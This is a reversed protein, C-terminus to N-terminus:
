PVPFVPVLDGPDDSDDYVVKELFLGAGPATHAPVSFGSLHSPLPHNRILHEFDSPSLKKSGVEALAGVIRRVMKWLFHSAGIRFLILSGSSSMEVREVVVVTSQEGARKDTFREFDHRGVLCTCAQQMSALDLSDRIWWVFQKALATRRISIQYLYFRRLADHRPHFNEAVTEVSLINMDKPLELNLARFLRENSIRAKARLRVVQGLAHVGADTRGAGDLDVPSQLVREAAKRLDGSVTRANKQEQWGSYRTGEYELVLKWCSMEGKAM